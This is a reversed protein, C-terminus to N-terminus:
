RGFIIARGCKWGLLLRGIAGNRKSLRDCPVAHLGSHAVDALHLEAFSLPHAELQRIALAHVVAVDQADGVELARGAPADEGLRRHERAAARRGRRSSGHRRCSHCRQSRFVLFGRRKWGPLRAGIAADPQALLDLPLTLFPDHAVDTIHPEGCSLPNADLHKLRIAHVISGNQTNGVELARSRLADEGLLFLELLGQGHCLKCSPTYFM